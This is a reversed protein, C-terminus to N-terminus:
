SQNTNTVTGCTRTPTAVNSTKTVTPSATKSQSRTVTPSATKSVSRTVTPSASKSVSKSPASGNSKNSSSGKSPCGETALVSSSILLIAILLKVSQKKCFM